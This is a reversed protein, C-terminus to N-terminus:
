KNKQTSWLIHSFIFNRVFFLVGYSLVLDETCVDIYYVYLVTHISYSLDCYIDSFPWSRTLLDPVFHYLLLDSNDLCAGLLFLYSSISVRFKDLTWLNQSHTLYLARFLPTTPCFHTSPRAEVKSFPSSLHKKLPFVICNFVTLTDRLYKKNTEMNRKPLISDLDASVSHSATLNWRQMNQHM